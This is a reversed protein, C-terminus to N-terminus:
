SFSPLHFGSGSKKKKKKKQETSKVEVTTDVNETPSSSTGKFSPGKFAFSLGCEKKQKTTKVQATENNDKANTSFKFSPLSFGGKHHKKPKVQSTDVFQATNNIDDKQETNVGTAENYTPPPPTRNINHYNTEPDSNPEKFSPSAFKFGSM